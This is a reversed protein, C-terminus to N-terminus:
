RSSPQAAARRAGFSGLAGLGLTLAAAGLPGLLPVSPPPDGPGTVIVLHNLLLPDAATSEWTHFGISVDTPNVVAFGYNPEVGHAWRRVAETVDFDYSGFDPIDTESDLTPGFGPKNTWNLTQEDWDQTVQHVYLAGGPPPPMGDHDFTFSFVMFLSAAIVTEGPELLGPPLEFKLYSIQDHAVMNEDIGEFAYMTEYNGRVLSPIFSYPSTDEGSAGPKLDFVAADAPSPLLALLAALTCPVIRASREIWALSAEKDM